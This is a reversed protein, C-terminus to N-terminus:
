VREGVIKGGGKGRETQREIYILIVCTYTNIFCMAHHVARSDVISLSELEIGLLDLFNERARLEEEATQCVM